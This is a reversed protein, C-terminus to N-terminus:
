GPDGLTGWHGEELRWGEFVGGGGALMVVSLILNGVCSGKHSM